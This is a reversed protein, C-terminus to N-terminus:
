AYTTAEAGDQIALRDSHRLAIEEFAAFLSAPADTLDEPPQRPRVVGLRARPSDPTGAIARLAQLWQESLWVATAETFLDSRADLWLAIVGDGERAQFSLDGEVCGMPLEEVKVAADSRVALAPLLGFQVPLPAIARSEQAYALERQLLDAPCHKH